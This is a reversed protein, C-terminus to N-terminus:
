RGQICSQLLLAGAATWVVALLSLLAMTRAIFRVFGANDGAPQAGARAAIAHCRLVVPAIAALALLAVGAVLLRTAAPTAGQACLLTHGGYSLTFQVGWVLPGWLMLVLTRTISPRDKM